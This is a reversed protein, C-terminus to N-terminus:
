CCLTLTRSWQPILIIWLDLYYTVTGITKSTVFQVCCYQRLLLDTDFTDGRTTTFSIYSGLLSWWIYICVVGLIRCNKIKKWKKNITSNWIATCIVLSSSFPWGSCLTTFWNIIFITRLPFRLIFFSCFDCFIFHRDYICLLLSTLM